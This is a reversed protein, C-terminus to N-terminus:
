QKPVLRFVGRGVKEFRDSRQLTTVVLSYGREGLEKGGERLTRVIEVTRMQGGAENMVIEAADKISMDRFRNHLQKGTPLGFSSRAADVASELSRANRDLAEVEARLRVLEIRKEEFKQRAEKALKNLWDLHAKQIEDM